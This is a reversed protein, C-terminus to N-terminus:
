NIFYRFKCFFARGPKQLKFNDYLIRDLVNNCEFTINYKENALSYTLGANHNYQTPITSKSRLNGYGEWTLFFWHVYQFYYNLRLRDNKKFTNRTTYNLELNSYLWPTNPIKNNYTIQPTGNAYYKTKSRADQYSCNAVAQFSNRYEYKIEAEVGKVLVNSVNDYQSLGEAESVVSQIYDKVNRSFATLEYNISHDSIRFLGFGGLNFNDSSEPKLKFNPYITTGNGMYEIALPLRVSHEYSAKFSLREFLRYRTGLGYGFHNTTKSGLADRSGTIWYLDQQQVNLHNVYDKLFFTNNLNNALLDQSYSLGIIHKILIDKSPEFTTDVDDVRNNQLGNLLYNLNLSHNKSLLYNFNTRVITIPQKYHRISKGRGMIENRHTETYTGDWSYKRYTTDITQSNDETHSISFNVNLNETLFKQKRYQIQGNFAEKKRNAKGYVISQVSGTQLKNNEISFSSSFLFADAWKKNVWGMELRGLFSLYDDNFRKLDVKKFVRNTEDWVEVGRMKYDNDSVNFCFTPKVIFGSKSTYQANFDAKQTHFSGFGYSFDIYKKKDQRTIINIAGGLADSGFEVPVVGKYVVVRSVINTPLNSLTVGCGISAFPVGDIFYRVSNGSLGNISLDTTSGVGGSERLKIGSTRNIISSLNQTTNVLFQIDLANVSFVGDKLQATKTKAIVEVSKLLVVDENLIFNRTQSTSLDIENAVNVYGLMSVNFNYKGSILSLTYFGKSDSLAVKQADRVFFTAREIPEGNKNKIFGSITVTNDAIAYHSLLFMGVVLYHKAYFWSTTKYNRVSFIHLQSLLSIFKQIQKLM